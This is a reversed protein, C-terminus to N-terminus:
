NLSALTQWLKRIQGRVSNADNALPHLDLYTELDNIALGFRNTKYFMWAREKLNSGLYPDLLTVRDAAAIARHYNRKRVHMKKLSSLLHVLFKRKTYPQFFEDPLQVKEGLLDAILNGCDEKSMLTGHHFPDVYIDDKQSAARMVMSGPLGIPEFFIGLRAGVEMYVLSLAIPVGKKRTLVQDLYLNRPNYSDHQDGSYGVTVGLHHTLTRLKANLDMSPELRERVEGALRDLTATSEEIDVAPSDEAAIYLAGRALDFDQRLPDVLNAFLERYVNSTNM